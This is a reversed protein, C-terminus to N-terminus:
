IFLILKFINQLEMHYHCSQVQEYISTWNHIEKKNTFTLFFRKQMLMDGIGKSSADCELVFIHNFINNFDRLALVSPSTYYVYFIKFISFHQEIKNNWSFANNKLLNTSTNAIKRYKQVFKQYFGILGLFNCLSKVEVHTGSDLTYPSV